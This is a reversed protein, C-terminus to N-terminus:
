RWCGHPGSRVWRRGIAPRAPRRSPLMLPVFLSAPEALWAKDGNLVVGGVTGPETTIGDLGMPASEPSFGGPDADYLDFLRGALGVLDASGFEEKEFRNCQMAVGFPEQGQAPWSAWLASFGHIDGGHWVEPPTGDTQPDEPPESSGGIGGLGPDEPVLNRFVGFGYEGGAAISRPIEMSSMMWEPLIAREQWALLFRSLDGITM